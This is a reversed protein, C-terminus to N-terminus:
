PTGVGRNAGHCTRRSGCRRTPPRTREAGPLERRLGCDCRRRARKFGSGAIPVRAGSRADARALTNAPWPTGASKGTSPWRTPTWGGVLVSGEGDRLRRVYVDRQVGEARPTRQWGLVADGFAQMLRQGTVVREGPEPARRAAPRRDTLQVRGRPRPSCPRRSGQDDQSKWERTM